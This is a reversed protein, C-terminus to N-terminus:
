LKEHREEIFMEIEKLSALIAEAKKYGFSVIPKDQKKEGKENVEYIKIFPRGGYVDKEVLTKM